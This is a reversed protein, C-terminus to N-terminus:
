PTGITKHLRTLDRLRSIANDVSADCSCESNDGKRGKAVWRLKIQVEWGQEKMKKLQDVWSSAHLKKADALSAVAEELVSIDDPEFEIGIPLTFQIVQQQTAEESDSNVKKSCKKM